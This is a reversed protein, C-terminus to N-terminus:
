RASFVGDDRGCHCGTAGTDKEFLALSERAREPTAFSMRGVLRLPAEMMKGVDEEFEPVRLKQAAVFLALVGRDKEDIQERAEIKTILASADGEIQSFAKEIEFNRTGDEQVVANYYSQVGTNRPTQVRFQRLKIDYVCLRSQETGEPTFRNLYSVPLYHHRKADSM